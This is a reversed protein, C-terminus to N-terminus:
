AGGGLILDDMAAQVASLQQKLNEIEIQEPTMVPETPAPEESALEEDTKLRIIGADLKYRRADASLEEWLETSIPISGIPIIEHISDVYFSDIDGNPKFLVYYQM